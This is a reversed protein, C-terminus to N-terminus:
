GVLAMLFRGDRDCHSQDWLTELSHIAIQRPWVFEDFKPTM